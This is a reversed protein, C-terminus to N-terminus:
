APDSASRLEWHRRAEPSALDHFTRVIIQHAREIGSRLSRRDPCHSRCQLQLRMQPIPEADSEAEHLMVEALRAYLRADPQRYRFRWMGQAEETEAGPVEPTSMGLGPFVGLRDRDDNWLPGRPVHNVYVVETQIPVIKAQVFAEFEAIWNEFREVVDTFRPYPEDGRKVWHYSLRDHQLELVRERSTGVLQLRTPEMATPPLAPIANPPLRGDFLEVDHNFPPLESGRNFEQGHRDWFRGLAPMSLGLIPQFLCTLVTETLPPNGFSPLNGALNDTPEM